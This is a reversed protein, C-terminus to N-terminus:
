TTVLPALRQYTKPGVGDIEQLEEVATFRGHEERWAIIASAMVPGVGPLDELQAQSAANLDLPGGPTASSGAGETTAGDNVEGLPHSTTGIRIQMGDTVPAALNLDAPDADATLGGAAAIAEQVITGDRVRVVGPSAVAGAVHVRLVAPTPSPTPGAQASPPPTTAAPTSPLLPVETAASRGLAILTVAVAAVLLLAVVIM